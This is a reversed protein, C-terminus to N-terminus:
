LNGGIGGSRCLLGKIRAIYVVVHRMINARVWLREESIRGIARNMM